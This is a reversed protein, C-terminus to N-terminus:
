EILRYYYFKQDSIGPYFIKVLDSLIRDPHASGEDWYPNGFPSEYLGNNYIRGGSFPKLLRYRSDKKLIDERSAIGSSNILWIDANGGTKYVAEFDLFVSGRNKTGSWPYSAGADQFLIAAYSEGGPVGWSDGYIMSSLVVPKKAGGAPVSARIEEYMSVTESFLEKGEEELDLFLSLFVIWEARGLPHRELWGATVIVPFGKDSLVASSDYDGGTWPTFVADPALTFLKETDIERGEGVQQTEGASVRQRVLSSSTNKVSDIAKLSELSGLSELFAINESSLSVVSAAPIKVFIGDRIPSIDPKKDRYLYYAYGAGPGATVTVERYSDYDAYAFNEAYLNTHTKGEHNATATDLQKGEKGCGTLLFLMFFLSIIKLYGPPFVGNKRDTM